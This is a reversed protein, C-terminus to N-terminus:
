FSTELPDLYTCSDSDSTTSVLSWDVISDGGGHKILDARIRARTDDPAAVMRLRTAKQSYNSKFGQWGAINGKRIQEAIGGGLWDWAYDFRCMRESDLPIQDKEMKKEIAVKRAVSEVQGAVSLEDRGMRDTVGIIEDIVQESETDLHGVIEHINLVLECIHGIISLPKVRKEGDHEVISVLKMNGFRGVMHAARVPNRLVPIDWGLDLEFLKTVANTMVMSARLPWAFNLADSTVTEIRSRTGDAKFPLRVLPRLYYSGYDAAIENTLSLRPSHHFETKGNNNVLLGGSGFIAGKAVNLTALRQVIHDPLPDEPSFAAMSNLHIGRSTRNHDVIRRNLQYGEVVGAMRMNKLMGLLLEDGDFSRHVAEEATTTEATAYEPGSPDIYFRGGNSLMGDDNSMLGSATLADIIAEHPVVGMGKQEPEQYLGLKVDPSHCSGVLEHTINEPLTLMLSYETEIGYITPSMEMARMALM